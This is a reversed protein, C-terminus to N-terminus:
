QKKNNGNGIVFWGILGSVIFIGGAIMMAVGGPVRSAITSEDKLHGWVLLGIGLLVSVLCLFIPNKLESNSM